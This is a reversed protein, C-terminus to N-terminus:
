NGKPKDIISLGIENSTELMQNVFEVDKEYIHASNAQHIYWGIGVNSTVIGTDTIKVGIERLKMSIYEQLMTFLFVDYCVTTAMNNSRMTTICNVRYEKGVLEMMFQLNITCPYEEKTKGERKDLLMDLDSPYLITLCARRTNPNLALEEIIKPLQKVVRPGYATSFKNNNNSFEGARANVAAVTEFDDRGNILWLFFVNAFELNFKRIPNYTIRSQPNTLKFQLCNIEKHVTEDFPKVGHEMIQRLCWIFADQYTDFTNM